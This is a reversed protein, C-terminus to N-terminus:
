RVTFHLTARAGEASHDNNALFVTLTHKGAPLHKYVIVPAISPSYKGAIGLTKALDGNPGSYKPYDFKGGDMQFHLHGRHAKNLKGVDAPDLSFNSLAVRFTVTSTTAAGASPTTFRVSPPGSALASAAFVAVTAAVAALALKKM